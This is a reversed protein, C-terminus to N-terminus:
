SVRPPCSPRAEVRPRRMWQFVRRYARVPDGVGVVLLLPLLFLLRLRFLTGLNAVVLSIPVATAFAFAIILLGAPERTKLLDRTGVVLPLLLVYVLVMEMGAAVRMGGTSGKTDFWQWPFPALFGIALARPLYAVMEKLTSVMAWPDMLSHGGASVFGQRRIGLAEPDIERLAVVAQDNVHTVGYIPQSRPLPGGPRSCLALAKEVLEHGNTSLPGSVAETAASAAPLSPDRPHGRHHATFRQPHDPAPESPRPLDAVPKLEERLGNPAHDNGGQLYLRALMEKVPEQDAPATQGLYSKYAEIAGVWHRQQSEVAALGLYAPQYAPQVAIALQFEDAAQTWQGQAMYSRARKAHGREPHPPSVLKLPDLTRAVLTSLVVVAVIVAYRRADGARPPKRLCAIVSAPVFVAIVALSVSSGLYARIRTLLILAVALAFGLVIGRGRRVRPRMAATLGGGSAELILLLVAFILFWSFSDKLLQTSWLLSSPWCGVLASSAIAARRNWLTKGIRYAFLGTLACLLSNLIAPYLPHSGLFRYVAGVVLFYEVALEKPHPLETGNRWADAIRAGITHYVQSDPSFKWFGSSPIQLSHLVPLSWFSSAFLALALLIRVTYTLLLIGCLRRDGTARDALRGLLAFGAISVLPFVWWASSPLRMM